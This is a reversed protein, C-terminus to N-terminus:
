GLSGTVYASGGAIQAIKAILEILDIQDIVDFQATKRSEQKWADGRRARCATETGLAGTDQPTVPRLQRRM